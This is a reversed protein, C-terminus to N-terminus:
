SVDCSTLFLLSLLQISAVQTTFFFLDQPLHLESLVRPFLPSASHPSPVCGQGVSTHSHPQLEESSLQSSANVACFFVLQQSSSNRLFRCLILPTSTKEMKSGVIDLNSLTMVVSCSTVNDELSAVQYCHLYRCTGSVSVPFGWPPFPHSEQPLSKM